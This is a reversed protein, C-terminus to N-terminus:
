AAEKTETEFERGAEAVAAWRADDACCHTHDPNDCHPAPWHGPMEARCGFEERADPILEGDDDFVVVGNCLRVWGQDHHADVVQAADHNAADAAPCQPTHPCTTAPAAITPTSM